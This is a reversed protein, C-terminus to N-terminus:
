FMSIPQKCGFLHPRAARITPVNGFTHQGVLLEDGCSAGAWKTSQGPIIYQVAAGYVCEAPTLVMGCVHWMGHWVGHVYWATPTVGHWVCRASRQISAPFIQSSPLITVKLLSGPPFHSFVLCPSCFQSSFSTSFAPHLCLPAHISTSHLISHLHSCFGLQLIYLPFPLHLPFIQNPLRCFIRANAHVPSLRSALGLQPLRGSVSATRRSPRM